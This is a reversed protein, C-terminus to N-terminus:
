CSVLQRSGLKTQQVAVVTEALQQKERHSTAVTEALAAVSSTLHELSLTAVAGNKEEEAVKVRVEDLDRHQSKFEDEQACLDCM